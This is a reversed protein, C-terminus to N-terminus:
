LQNLGVAAESKGHAHIQQGGQNGQMSSTPGAAGGGIFPFSISSNLAQEMTHANCSAVKNKQGGNGTQHGAVAVRNGQTTPDAGVPPEAAVGGVNTSQNNRVHRGGPKAGLSIVGQSTSGAVNRRHNIKM